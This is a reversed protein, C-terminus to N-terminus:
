SYKGLLNNMLPEESVFPNDFSWLGLAPALVHSSLAPALVYKDTRRAGSALAVSCVRAM